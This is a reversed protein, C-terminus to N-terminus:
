FAKSGGWLAPDGGGQKTTEIALLMAHNDDYALLRLLPKYDPTSGRFDLTLPAQPLLYCCICEDQSAMSQLSYIRAGFSDLWYPVYLVNHQVVHTCFICAFVLSRLPM